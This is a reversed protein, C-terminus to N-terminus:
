NSNLPIFPLPDRLLLWRVHTKRGRAQCTAFLSPESPMQERESVLVFLMTCSLWPNPPGQERSGCNCDGARHRPRCAWGPAAEGTLVTSSAGGHEGYRSLSKTFTSSNSINYASNQKPVLAVSSGDTVQPCLHRSCATVGSFCLLFLGVAPFFCGLLSSAVSCGVEPVDMEQM